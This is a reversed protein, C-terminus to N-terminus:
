RTPSLLSHFFEIGVEHVPSLPGWSFLGQRLNVHSAECVRGDEETVQDCMKLTSHITNRPTEENFLFTYDIQTTCEDVPLFREVSLGGPYFNWGTTFPLWIWLGDYVAGNRGQPATHVVVRDGVRVKYDAVRVDRSLSKHLWPIHYSELWNEVYLKWNCSFLFRKRSHTVLRDLKVESCLLPLEGMCELLPRAATDFNIFIFQGWSEVSIPYLSYDGAPLGLKSNGYFGPTRALTGDESYIWGHYRCRLVDCHQTGEWALPGGRHRCINHFARLVGDRGRRVIVSAGMISEVLTDGPNQFREMLGFFIWSKTLHQSKELEYRKALHYCEPELTYSSETM